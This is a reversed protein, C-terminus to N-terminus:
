RLELAGSPSALDMSPTTPPAIFGQTSLLLHIQEVSQSLRLQQEAFAEERRRGDGIVLWILLGAIVWPLISTKFEAWYVM